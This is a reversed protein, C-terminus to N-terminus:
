FRLDLISFPRPNNSDSDCECHAPSHGLSLLRLFNWPYSKQQGRGTRGDRFRETCEPLSQLLKTVYFTLVDNDLIPVCLSSEIV